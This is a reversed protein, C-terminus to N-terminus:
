QVSDTDKPYNPLSKKIYLTGEILYIGYINKIPNNFDFDIDFDDSDKLSYVNKLDDEKYLDYLLQMSLKLDQLFPTM